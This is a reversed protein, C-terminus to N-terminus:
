QKKILRVEVRRNEHRGEETDNSAVPQSEGKSSAEVQDAGAGFGVLIGKIARARQMGLRQNTEEEGVNDTHGALTVKEGTQKMREALKKLYEDVKPDYEKETSGFPFRIIIRDDLEEVTEAVKEEPVIWDFGSASFPNERVGAEEDMTRARIRVRDDPIANGFLARIQEARAFGQNDFGDPKPEGEFYMGTIELINKDKMGALVVQRLSDFNENTYAKTDAWKFYIPYKPIAAMASDPSPQVAETTAEGKDGCAYCLEDRCGNYTLLFYLLWVVFAILLRLPLSM